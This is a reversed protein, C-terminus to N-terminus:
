LKCLHLFSVLLLEEASHITSSPSLLSTPSGLKPYLQRIKMLAIMTHSTNKASGTPDYWGPFIAYECDGGTSSEFTELQIDYQKKLGADIAGSKILENIKQREDAILAEATPRSAVTQLPLYVM